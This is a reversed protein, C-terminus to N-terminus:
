FPPFQIDYFPFGCSGDPFNVRFFMYRGCTNLTFDLSAHYISDRSNSTDIHVNVGSM